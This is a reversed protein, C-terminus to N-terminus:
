NVLETLKGIDARTDVVEALEPCKDELTKEKVEPMAMM